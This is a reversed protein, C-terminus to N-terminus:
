DFYQESMVQNTKATNAVLQKLLAVQQEGVQDRQGRGFISAVAGALSGLTVMRTGGGGGGGGEEESAMARALAMNKPADKRPATASATAPPEQINLGAQRVSEQISQTLGAFQEQLNTVDILPATGQGLQQVMRPISERVAALAEVAALGGTATQNLAARAGDGGLASPLEAFGKLIETAGRTLGAVIDVMVAVAGQLATTIEEGFVRAVTKVGEFLANVGQAMALKMGTTLLEVVPQIGSVFGEFFGNSFDANQVIGRLGAAFEGLQTVASGVLEGLRQIAGTDGLARFFKTVENTATTLGDKFGGDGFKLALEEVSSQLNQYAGKLTNNMIAALEEAKGGSDGLQGTLNRIADIERTAILAGLQGRTGFIKTFLGVQQSGSLGKVADGIKSLVQTFSQSDLNVDAMSLGMEALGDKVPTIGSALRSFMARLATGGMEARIGNTALVGLIASAEEIPVGLAAAQSASFKLAEGLQQVNTGSKAATMAMVDAVRAAQDAELGFGALASTGILAAEALELGGSMALNLWGGASALIQNANFGQQATFIMAQAAQGATYKTTAGLRRAEKELSALETGTSSSIAAVSAMSADFDQITRTAGALSLGAGLGGLALSVVGIAKAVGGMIGQMSSAFNRGATMAGSFLNGSLQAGIKKAQQAFASMARQAATIAANMQSIDVGISLKLSNAM